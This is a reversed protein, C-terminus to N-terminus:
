KSFIPHYTIEWENDITLPYNYRNYTFLFDKIKFENTKPNKIEKIEQILFPHNGIMYGLINETLNLDPGLDKFINVLPSFTLQYQILINGLPDEHIVESINKNTYSYKIVLFLKNNFHIKEEIVHGKKNYFFERTQSNDYYSIEKLKNNKYQFKIPNGIPHHTISKLRGDELYHYKVRRKYTSRNTSIEIERVKKDQSHFQFYRLEKERHLIISQVSLKDEYPM